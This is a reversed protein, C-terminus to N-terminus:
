AEEQIMETLKEKFPLFNQSIFIDDNGDGNMDSVGAHMGTTM